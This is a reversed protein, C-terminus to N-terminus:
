RELESRRWRVVGRSVRVPAPVKGSSSWRWWTAISIGCLAAAHAAALLLAEKALDQRLQDTLKSRM